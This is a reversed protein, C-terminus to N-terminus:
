TPLRATRAASRAEHANCEVPDLVVNMDHTYETRSAREVSCQRGSDVCQGHEGGMWERGADMKQRGM